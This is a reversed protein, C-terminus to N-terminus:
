RSGAMVIKGAVTKHGSKEFKLDVFFRDGATMPVGLDMIMLHTGGPALEVRGKAPIELSDVPAMSTVGNVTRSAHLASAQSLSAKASLLRDAGGGKNAITMYATGTTQGPAVGRAWVDSVVIDPKTSQQGCAALALFAITLLVRIM